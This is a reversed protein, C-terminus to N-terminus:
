VQRGSRSPDSGLIRSTGTDAFLGNLTAESLSGDAVKIRGNVDVEIRAKHSVSTSSVNSIAKGNADTKINNMANYMNTGLLNSDPAGPLSFTPQMSSIGTKLSRVPSSFVGPRGFAGGAGLNSIGFSGASTGMRRNIDMMAEEFTQVPSTVQNREKEKNLIDDITSKQDRLIDAIKQKGIQQILNIEQEKGGQAELDRIRNDMENKINAIRIENEKKVLAVRQSSVNQGKEEQKDLERSYDDLQTIQGENLERQLGDLVNVRQIEQQALERQKNGHEITAVERKEAYEKRIAEKEEESKAGALAAKEELALQKMTLNIRKELLSNIDAATRGQDRYATILRDVGRIEAEVAEAQAKIARIKAELEDKRQQEQEEALKKRLQSIKERLQNEESAIIQNHKKYVNLINELDEIAKATSIKKENMLVDVNTIEEELNEKDRKRNDEAIEENNEKLLKRHKVAMESWELSGRNLYKKNLMPSGDKMTGIEANEPMNPNFRPNRVESLEAKKMLRGIHLFSEFKQQANEFDQNSEKEKFNAWELKARNQLNLLDARKKAEAAEKDKRDQERQKRRSPDLVDEVGQQLKELIPMAEKKLEYFAGTLREKIPIAHVAREMKQLQTNLEAIQKSIDYIKQEKMWDPMSSNAIDRSVSQLALMQEKLTVINESMEGSRLARHTQAFKQLNAIQRQSEAAARKREIVRVDLPNETTNGMAYNNIASGIAYGGVAALGLLGARAAVALVRMNALQANTNQLIMNLATFYGLRGGTLSTMAQLAITAAHLMVLSNRASVILGILGSLRLALAAIIAVASVGLAAALLTGIAKIPEPAENFMKVTGTLIQLFSTMYPLLKEGMTISLAELQVVFAKWSNALSGKQINFAKEAVGATNAMKAMSDDLQTFGDSALSTALNVATVERFIAKLAKGDGNTAEIVKKLTKVLGDQKLTNQDVIFGYHAMADVAQKSPNVLAGILTRLNRIAVSGSLGKATATAIVASLEEFGIEAANASGLVFGLSSALEEYRIKGVEVTKFLVDNIHRLDGAKKGYTNVVNTLVDVAVTSSTVGATAGLSAEKLFEQALAMNEVASKGHLVNASYIEFLANANDVSSTLLGHKASFQGIEHHFRKFQETNLQAITNMNHMNTNFKTFNSLAKGGVAGAFAVAMGAFARTMTNAAASSARQMSQMNAGVQRATTNSQQQVRNLSQIAGGIVIRVFGTMDFLSM